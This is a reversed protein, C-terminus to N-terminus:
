QRKISPGGPFVFAHLATSFSCIVELRSLLGANALGALLAPTLRCCDSLWLRAIKLPFGEGQGENFIGSNAKEILPDFASDELCGCGSFNLHVSEPM